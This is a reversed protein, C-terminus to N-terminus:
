SPPLRTRVYHTSYSKGDIIHTRSLALLCFRTLFLEVYMSYM